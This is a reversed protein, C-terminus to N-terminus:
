TLQERLTLYVQEKVTLPRSVQPLQMRASRKEAINMRRGEENVVRRGAIM